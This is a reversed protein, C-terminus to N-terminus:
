GFHDARVVGFAIKVVEMAQMWLYFVWGVFCFATDILTFGHRFFLESSM